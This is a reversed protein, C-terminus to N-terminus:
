ISVNVFRMIRTSNTRVTYILVVAALIVFFLFMRWVQPISLPNSPDDNFKTSSAPLM